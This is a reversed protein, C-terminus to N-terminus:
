DNFNRQSLYTQTQSEFTSISSILQAIQSAAATLSAGAPALIPAAITGGVVPIALPGSASTIAAGATTLLGQITGLTSVINNHMQTEAKRYTSALLMNDTAAGLEFKNDRAIKVESNEHDILFQNKNDKDGISINGNKLFKITSGSVSSSIDTTGDIKTKGGYTIAAEGDDNIDFSIGNYVFNFLQGKQDKKPDSQDRMGGIIVASNTEGNICLILVKSGKGLGVKSNAASHDTRLAFHCQDALGALPNMLLCGRYLKSNGTKNSRQQVLVHYEIFKKSRSQPDDPYVIDQVEGLRLATNDFNLGDWMEHSTKVTLFSPIVDGNPLVAM